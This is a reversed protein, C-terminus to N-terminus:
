VGIDYEMAKHHVFKVGTKALPVPLSLTERIYRLWRPFATRQFWWRHAYLLYRDTGVM